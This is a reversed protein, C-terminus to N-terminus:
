PYYEEKKKKKKKIVYEDKGWGKEPAIVVTQGTYTNTCCLEIEKYQPYVGPPNLLFVEDGLDGM